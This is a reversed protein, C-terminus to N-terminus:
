PKATCKASNPKCTSEIIKLIKELMFSEIIRLGLSVRGFHRLIFTLDAFRCSYKFLLLV